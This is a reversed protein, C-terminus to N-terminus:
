EIQNGNKDIYFYRNGKSVMARGDWFSSVDDYIIPIVINGTTDVFGFKTHKYGFGKGNNGICVWALGEHFDGVDKYKIPLIEEGKENIFGWYSYISDKCSLAVAAIGESFPRAETYQLSIVEKGSYDIFGSYGNSRVVALKNKRFPVIDRYKSKIISSGEDKNSCSCSQPTDTEYMQDSFLSYSVRKEQRKNVAPAHNCLENWKKSLAVIKETKHHQKLTEYLAEYAICVFKSSIYICNKTDFNHELQYRSCIEFRQELLQIKKEFLRYKDYVSILEQQMLNLNDDDIHHYYSGWLTNCVSELIEIKEQSMRYNDYWNCLDIINQIRFYGIAYNDGLNYLTKILLVGAAKMLEFTKKNNGIQFYLEAIYKMYYYYNDLIEFSSEGTIDQLPNQHVYSDFEKELIEITKEISIDEEIIEQKECDNSNEVPYDINDQEELKLIHSDDEYTTSAFSSERNTEQPLSKIVSPKSQNQQHEIQFYDLLPTSIFQEYKIMELYTNIMRHAAERFDSNQLNDKPKFKLFDTHVRQAYKVLEQHSMADNNRNFHVDFLWLYIIYNPFNETYWEIEDLLERFNQKYIERLDEGFKCKLSLRFIYDGWCSYFGYVYNENLIYKGYLEKNRFYVTKLKLFSDEMQDFLEDKFKYIYFLNIYAMFFNSLKEKDGSYIDKNTFYKFPLKCLDLLFYDIQKSNNINYTLKELLHEIWYNREAYYHFLYGDLFTFVHKKNEVVLTEMIRTILFEDKEETYQHLLEYEFENIIQLILEENDEETDILYKLLQNKCQEIFTNDQHLLINKLITHTFTWKNSDGYHHIFDRLWYRLSNFELPNWADGLLDALMKESVGHQSIAIFTLAKQTIEPNFYHTTLHLFYEFLKDSRAPFSKIIRSLYSEVRCDEKEFQVKYIERFDEAGLEMLISLSMKLWLPSGYAPLGNNDHISLLHNQLNISLEKSNKKLSDEIVLQADNISFSDLNILKYYGTREIIAEAYGPLTTCIFPVSYPIFKFEDLLEDPLFSDLSDILIVPFYGKAQLRVFLQQLYFYEFHKDEIDDNLFQSIMYCWNNIMARVHISRPSIGAAHPLVFLSYDKSLTQLREYLASFVFSKGSGSYGSLFIGNTGKLMTGASCSDLIFQCLQNMLQQRGLFQSVNSAIYSFLLAFEEEEPSNVNDQNDIEAIIDNFILQFLQNGFDQLQYFKHEKENWAAKYHIIRDLCNNQTCIKYIKSKLQILKQVRIKAQSDNAQADDYTSLEENSLHLYSSSDRFCFFSHPLFSSNGIAGLIIELETVSLDDELFFQNKEDFIKRIQEIRSASPIWGYREGLLAVFYPRTQKILDMCVHLIKAERESEHVDHTNIGWRLDIVQISVKYQVLKENLRPVIYKRIYDREAQMDNFTSSIFISINKWKM